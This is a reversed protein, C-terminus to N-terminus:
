VVSKRDGEAGLAQALRTKAEGAVPARALIAIGPAPSM